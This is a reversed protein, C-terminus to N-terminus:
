CCPVSGVLLPPVRAQSAGSWGRECGRLVAPVGQLDRVHPRPCCPSESGLLLSASLPPLSGVATGTAGWSSCLGLRETGRTVRKIPPHLTALPGLEKM